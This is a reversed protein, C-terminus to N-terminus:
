ISFASIGYSHDLSQLVGVPGEDAHNESSAGTTTIERDENETNVTLPRDTSDAAAFDEDTFTHRNFPSIGSKRFGSQANKVTAAKEYAMGFLEAVQLESIARGPHQRLWTSAEQDYFANLSKFFSLDLPQM